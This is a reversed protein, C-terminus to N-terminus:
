RSYYFLFHVARGNFIINSILVYIFNKVTLTLGYILDYKDKKNM